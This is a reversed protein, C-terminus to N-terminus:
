TSSFLPRTYAGATLPAGAADTYSITMDAVKAFYGGAAYPRGSIAQWTM